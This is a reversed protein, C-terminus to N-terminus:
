TKENQRELKMHHNFCYVDCKGIENKLMDLGKKWMMDSITMIKTSPERHHFTLMDADSEGCEICSHSALHDQIFKRNQKIVPM